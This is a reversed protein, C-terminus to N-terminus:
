VKSTSPLLLLTSTSTRLTTTTTTTTTTTASYSGGPHTTGIRGYMAPLISPFIVRLANIKFSQNVDMHVCASRMGQNTTRPHPWSLNFFAKIIGIFTNLPKTM